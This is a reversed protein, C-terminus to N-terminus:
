LGARYIKETSLYGFVVLGLVLGDAGQLSSYLANVTRTVRVGLWASAFRIQLYLVFVILPQMIFTINVASFSQSQRKGLQLALRVLSPIPRSAFFGLCFLTLHLVNFSLYPSPHRHALRHSVTVIVATLAAALLYLAIAETM